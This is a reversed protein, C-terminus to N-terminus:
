LVCKNKLKTHSILYVFEIWQLEPSSGIFMIHVARQLRKWATRRAPYLLQKLELDARRCIELMNFPTVWCIHQMNVNMYGNLKQFSRLRYYRNAHLYPNPTTVIILGGASLHRKAFRILNVPSDVHEIVDGIYIVDFREGLDMESTADVCIFNHGEKVLQAVLKEDNDIGLVSQAVRVLTAHEWSELQSYELIHEGGGIDLVKKDRCYEGLMSDRTSSYFATRSDFYKRALKLVEGDNPNSTHKTYDFMELHYVFFWM